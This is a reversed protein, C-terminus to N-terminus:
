QNTATLYLYHALFYNIDNFNYSYDDIMSLFIDKVFIPYIQDIYEDIYDINILNSIIIKKIIIKIVIVILVLLMLFIIIAYFLFYNIFNNQYCIVLIIIM